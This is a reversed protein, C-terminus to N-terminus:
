RVIRFSARVASSANGAADTAVLTARYRGPGLTRRGLRGTFRVRNLGAVASRTLTGQPRFRRGRKREIVIAATAAGDLQFRFRTGRPRRKAGRRARKVRFVKNQSSFASAVPASADVVFEVSAPTPDTNLSTDTARVRFSHQGDPLSALEVPSTCQGFAAGDVSCEFVAGPESEFAVGHSRSNTLSGHAPGSVITTEPPTLDPVTVPSLESSGSAVTQGAALNEGPSLAIAPDLEWQGASGATASGVFRTIGTANAGAADPVAFVRVTANPEATGRIVEPGALAIAPTGIGGNPGTSPDNGPGVVPQLEVFVDNDAGRNRAIVHGTAGAGSLRIAAQNHNSIVNEAGASDGGITYNTATGSLILGDPGTNALSAGSSAVGIRNGAITGGTAGTVSIGSTGGNGSVLNSAEPADGGFTVNTVLSEISVGISNPV